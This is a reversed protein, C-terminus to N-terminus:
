LLRHSKAKRHDQRPVMPHYRLNRRQRVAQDPAVKPSRMSSQRTFTLLVLLFALVLQDVKKKQPREELKVTSAESDRTFAAADPSLTSVTEPNITFSSPGPSLHSPPLTGLVSEQKLPAHYSSRKIEFSSPEKKRLTSQPSRSPLDDAILSLLEEDVDMDTQSQETGQIQDAVMAVGLEPSAESKIVNV